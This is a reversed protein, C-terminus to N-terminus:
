ICEINKKYQSSSPTTNSNASHMTFNCYSLCTDSIRNKGIGVNGLEIEGNIANIKKFRLVKKTFLIDFQFKLFNMLLSYVINTYKIQTFIKCFTSKRSILHPLIESTIESNMISDSIRGCKIERFDVKQLIKVWISYVFM